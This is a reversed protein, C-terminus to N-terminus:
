MYLYFSSFGLYLCLPVYIQTDKKAFNSEKSKKFLGFMNFDGIARLTFIIAIILTLTRIISSEIKFPSEYFNIAIIFAFLLLGLAVIITAVQILLQNKENFYHVKFKDPIAYEIGWKGGFVWYFHLLSILILITSTTTSLIQEMM